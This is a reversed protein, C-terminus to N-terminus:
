PLPLSCFAGLGANGKVLVGTHHELVQQKQECGQRRNSTRNCIAEASLAMSTPFCPDYIKRADADVMIAHFKAFCTYVGRREEDLLWQHAVDHIRM